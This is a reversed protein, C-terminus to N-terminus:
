SGLAMPAAGWAELNECVRKLALTFAPAPIGLLVAIADEYQSRQVALDRAQTLVANLQSDAQKLDLQSATGFQLQQRTLNLTREDNAITQQYLREEEDLGCAQLYDSALEAHIELQVNAIDAASAQAAAM